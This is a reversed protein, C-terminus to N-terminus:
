NRESVTVAISQPSQQKAPLVEVQRPLLRLTHIRGRGVSIVDVRLTSIEVTEGQAPLRHLQDIVLGAVTKYSQQKPKPLLSAEVLDDIPYGGPILYSGDSEQRLPREEEETVEKEDTTVDGAIAELVDALTVLGLPSGFEDVVLLMHTATSKLREFVRLASMNEAVYSLPSAMGVLDVAGGETLAALVDARSVVGIVQDLGDSETVLLRSETARIASARLIAMPLGAQLFQIDPRGTMVTKVSRRDLDLVKEMMSREFSMLVGSSLGSALTSRIEEETVCSESQTKVGLLRLVLSNSRELLTFFPRAIVIMLRLPRAVLAASNEPAGLAISKPALDGFVLILYSVVSFAAISGVGAAVPEGARWHQLASRVYGELWTVVFAGMLLDTFLDGARIAALFLGPRKKLQLATTAGESPLNSELKAVRSAVLAMEALNFFATLALLILFLLIMFAHHMGLDGIEASPSSPKEKMVANRFM